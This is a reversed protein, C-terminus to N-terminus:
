GYILEFNLGSILWKGDLELDVTVLLRQELGDVIMELVNVVAARNSEEQSHFSQYSYETISGSFIEGDDTFLYEDHLSELLINRLQQNREEMSWEGYYADFLKHNVDLFAMATSGTEEKEEIPLIDVVYNSAETQEISSESSSVSVNPSPRFDFYHKSEEIPNSGEMDVKENSIIFFAAVGIMLISTIILGIKKM